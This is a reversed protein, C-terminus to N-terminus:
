LEKELIEKEFPKWTHAQYVEKVLMKNAAHETLKHFTTAAPGALRSNSNVMAEMLHFLITKDCAGLAEIASFARNRTRFEYSHSAYDVLEPLYKEREKKCAIQLWTIRVTKSFGVENKTLELYAAQKNPFQRCLKTLAMEINTYSADKLLAEYNKLLSPQISDISELCARRVLHNTDTLALKIIDISKKDKDKVLQSVIEARIGYFKEKAFRNILLERKRDITTDKLALIADYRDIMNEATSAQAAIEAYSRNFSLSKYINWNPDFLVYALQKGTPVKFAFTDIAQKSWNKQSDHTGDSYYYDIVLPMKFVDVISTMTQVQKAVVSVQGNTNSYSVQYKPYAGRYVWEDFFWDINIGLKDFFARQLDNTEVNEYPHKSLYYTIAKRYQENGVVYRMM